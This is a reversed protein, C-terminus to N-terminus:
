ININEIHYSVEVPFFNRLHNADDLVVTPSLDSYFATGARDFVFASKSTSSGIAVKWDFKVFSSKLVPENIAMVEGPERTFYTWRTPSFETAPNVSISQGLEISLLTRVLDIGFAHDYGRWIEGGAPRAGIELFVIDGNPKLIVELHTAATPPRLAAIVHENFKSVSRYLESKPDVIFSSRNRGNVFELPTGISRTVGCFVIQGADIICDCSCVDGAIFEEFDWDAIDQVNTLFTQLEEYGSIKYVGSTGYGNTPKAILPFGTSAAIDDLNAKTALEPRTPKFYRPTAIGELSVALKMEVKHRFPRLQKATPGPITFKERIRGCLEMIEEDWCIIRVNDASGAIEIEQLVIESLTDASFESLSIIRDLVNHAVSPARAYFEDDFIAVYRGPRIERAEHYRLREYRLRNIFIYTMM